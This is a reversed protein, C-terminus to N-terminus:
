VGSKSWNQGMKPGCAAHQSFFMKSRNEPRCLPVSVGSEGRGRCHGKDEGLRSLCLYKRDIFCTVCAAHCQVRPAASQRGERAECDILLIDKAGLYLVRHCLPVTQCMILLEYTSKCTDIAQYM